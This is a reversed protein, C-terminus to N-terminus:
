SIIQLTSLRAHFHVCSGWLASYTQIQTAIITQGNGTKNWIKPVLKQKLFSEQKHFVWASWWAVIKSSLNRSLPLSCCSPQHFQSNNQKLCYYQARILNWIHRGFESRTLNGAESAKPTPQPLQGHFPVVVQRRGFIHLFFTTCIYICIHSQSSIRLFIHKITFKVIPHKFCINKFNDDKLRQSSLFLIRRYCRLVFNWCPRANSPDMNKTKWKWASNQPPDQNCFLKLLMM